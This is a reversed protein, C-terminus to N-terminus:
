SKRTTDENKGKQQLEVDELKSFEYSGKIKSNLFKGVSEAKKLDEYLDKKTKRYEYIGGGKFQVLITDNDFGIAEVNSSTSIKVLEQIEKITRM